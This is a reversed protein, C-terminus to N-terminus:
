AASGWGWGKAKMFEDLYGLHLFKVRWWIINNKMCRIICFHGSFAHHDVINSSLVKVPIDICYKVIAIQRRQIPLCISHAVNYIKQM